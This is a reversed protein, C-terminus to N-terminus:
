EAPKAEEKPELEKVRAALRALQVDQVRTKVYLEGIMKLLDDIGLENM